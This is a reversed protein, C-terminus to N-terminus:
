PKTKKPLWVHLKRHQLSGKARNPTCKAPCIRFVDIVKENMNHLLWFYKSSFEQLFPIRLALFRLQASRLLVCGVDDFEVDTRSVRHVIQLKTPMHWASMTEELVIIM